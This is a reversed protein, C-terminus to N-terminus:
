DPRSWHDGHPGRGRRLDAGHGPQWRGEWRVDMMPYDAVDPSGVIVSDHELRLVTGYGLQISGILYKGEPVIVEGGGNVACADLCKQFAITDKTTGDGVAGFDRVNYVKAKPDASRDEEARVAAMDLAADTPFRDFTREVPKGLLYKDAFDLM